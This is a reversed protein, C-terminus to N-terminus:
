QVTVADLRRGFRELRPKYFQEADLSFAIRRTRGMLESRAFFGFYRSDMSNDRNDGLMLYHDAPVVVPCFSSHLSPHADSLRVMHNMGDLREDRYRAQDVGDGSEPRAHAPGYSAAQGNIFLVNDRLEVVDGPLGIIRKLLLEGAEKSDVTVIDGRQPEGLRALSIHTLPVRLDYALKDVLIRDGVMVTPLMSGSPVVNYDAIASRFVVMLAIFALLGKNAAVLKKLPFTM